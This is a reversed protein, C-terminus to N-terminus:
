RQEHYFEGHNEKAFSQYADSALEPTEFLGLCADKYNLRAQAKWKNSPKDFCVGKYGSKNNSRIGVNLLNQKQSAERLNSLRNDDKVGNIHDIGNEPFEGYIYLWVLRHARYLKNNIRIVIYGYNTKCGTIDGVKVSNANSVLRTFIGSDPNYHLQRKLEAQTLIATAM